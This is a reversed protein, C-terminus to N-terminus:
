SSLQRRDVCAYAFWELYSKHIHARDWTSAICMSLSVSHCIMSNIDKQKHEEADKWHLYRYNETGHADPGMVRIRYKKVRFEWWARVQAKTDQSSVQSWLSMVRAEHDRANGQLLWETRLPRSSQLSFLRTITTGFLRIWHDTFAGMDAICRPLVCNPLRIQRCKSNRYTLIM